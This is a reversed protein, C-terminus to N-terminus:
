LRLAATIGSILCDCIIQEEAFMKSSKMFVGYGLKESKNIIFGQTMPDYLIWKSTPKGDVWCCPGPRM